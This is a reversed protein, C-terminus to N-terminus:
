PRQAVVQKLTAPVNVGARSYFIPAFPSPEGHAVFEEHAVRLSELAGEFRVQCLSKFENNSQRRTVHSASEYGHVATLTETDHWGYNRNGAARPVGAPSRVLIQMQALPLADHPNSGSDDSGPDTAYGDTAGSASAMAARHTVAL